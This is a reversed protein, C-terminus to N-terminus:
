SKVTKSVDPAKASKTFPGGTARTDGTGSVLYGPAIAPGIRSSYGKPSTNVGSTAVNQSSTSLNRVKRPNNMPNFGHQTHRM